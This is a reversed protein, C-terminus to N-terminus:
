TKVKSFTLLLPPLLLFDAVLAISITIATLMGMGSNLEFNSFTLVGFGLVLVFSTVWLAVGVTSFAYRVGDEASLGMERRARLYKSLFHVTDDVVIGLTMGAVISLALGVRGVMLGWIGFAMTIPILNPILSLLGIRWSRLALLLVASILILATLTGKLMSRINRDGIHAFMLSSSSGEPVPFGANNQELWTRARQELQLQQTSSINELTATLRTASKRINIQNTTDLGFPLSFEYLLLYQAALEREGPLRYYATNDGHMSKNIRKMTDSFTNVHIVGPQTRLWNAFNDLYVLYEPDSVGGNSNAQVSYELMYIGTLNQTAYETDIRFPVSEGFYEVFRDDLVNRPVQAIFFLVLATMGVLLYIRRRIVFEAIALMTKNQFSDARYSKVPLIMMMAPMFTMSLIFAYFVGIAAMNGLDRFPPVDSFNLSLFGIATTLTTLFVPQLNIRLSELMAARRDSGKGMEHLFYVLIHVCDAIALTLIIIPVTMSPPTLRINLWGATGMTAAIMLIIVILTSLMSPISRLLLALTILVALFMFPYLTKVDQLSAEPFANNMVVMGTLHIRIEPYISEFESKLKRVFSVVEPVEDLRKGPLQITVNVGAVDGNAAVIRNILLPENLAIRRIRRLDSDSLSETTEVLDAVRLDDGEAETHQYNTISDVRISYPIQWARQTLDRVAELVDPAFVNGDAPTVVFMVNDNKTYVNQLAEFARLQPNDESFFMRYDNSFSLRTVGVATLVVWLLSVIVVTWRYTLVTNFFQHFM